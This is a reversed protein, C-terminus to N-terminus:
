SEALPTDKEVLTKMMLALERRYADKQEKVDLLYALVFLIMSSLFCGIALVYMATAAGANIIYNYADGGVYANINESAYDSTNKYNTLKDTGMYVFIISMIILTAAVIVCIKRM